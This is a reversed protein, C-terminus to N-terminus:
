RRLSVSPLTAAATSRCRAPPPVSRAASHVVPEEGAGLGVVRQLWVCLAFFPNRERSNTPTTSCLASHAVCPATTSKPTPPALGSARFPALTRDLMAPSPAPLPE